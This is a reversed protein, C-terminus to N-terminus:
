EGQRPQPDPDHQGAGADDATDADHHAPALVKGGATGGKEGALVLGRHVRQEPEGDKRLRAIDHLLLEGADRDEARQQNVGAHDRDPTIGAGRGQAAQEGFGRAHDGAAALDDDKGSPVRTGGPWRTGSWGPTAAMARWAARGTMGTANSEPWQQPFPKKAMYGPVMWTETCGGIAAEM